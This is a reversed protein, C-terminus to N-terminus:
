DKGGRNNRALKLLQSSINVGAQHVAASYIDFEIRGEDNRILSISVSPDLTDMEDSVLLVGEPLPHPLAMKFAPQLRYIVQCSSLYHTVSNADSLYILEITQKKVIKGNLQQLAYRADGDAGMACLRLSPHSAAAPWEIFKIFNYVFAVRLTAESSWALSPLCILAALFWMYVRKLRLWDTPPALGLTGLCAEKMENELKYVLKNATFV